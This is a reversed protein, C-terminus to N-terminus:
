IAFGRTVFIATRLESTRGMRRMDGRVVAWAGGKSHWEGLGRPGSRVQAGDERM